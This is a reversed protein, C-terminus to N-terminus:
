FDKIDLTMHRALPAFMASNMCTNVTTMTNPITSTSGEYDLRDEGMTAWARNMEAKLPRIKVDLKASKNYVFFYSYFLLLIM